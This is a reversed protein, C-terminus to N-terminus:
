LKWRQLGQYGLTENKSQLLKTVKSNKGKRLNINILKGMLFIIICYIM